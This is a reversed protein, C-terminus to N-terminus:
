LAQASQWNIAKIFPLHIIFSSSFSLLCNKGIINKMITKGMAGNGYNEV